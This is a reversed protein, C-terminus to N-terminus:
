LLLYKSVASQSADYGNVLGGQSLQSQSQQMLGANHLLFGGGMSSAGVTGVGGVSSGLGNDVRMGFPPLM